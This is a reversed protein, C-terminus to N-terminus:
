GTAYTEQIMSILEDTNLFMTFEGDIFATGLLGRPTTADKRLNVAIVVSDLIQSVVIGFSHDGTKPIILYFERLKEPFPRIPILNELYILPLGEDRYNVYNRNGSTYISDSAILELRSIRDLPLAFYEEFANNFLLISEAKELDAKLRTEEERKRREEESNIEAFRLNSAEAIGMIDLIMAVKGDGMITAGAFCKCDKIHNLLPKVVIEQNDFLEDVMLGFIQTGLKSVVVNIDSRWSNRRNMHVRRENADPPPQNEIRKETEPHGSTESTDRRDVLHMRQDPLREESIAQTYTREIGLVDSLSVLPLIKERLRLVEAEGIKEIKQSIEKAHILILEQVNVQPVAFRKGSVGIILSPMIALTLPLRIQISTGKDLNSELEIYGGLAEINTKVVDMGVGRGSIDSIEDATSMGPLLILNIKEMESMLNARDAPIIGNTIAKEMVKTANIGRGDDKVIINVQGGEHFTKIRLEGKRPKGKKEREDPTEIGHDMSNRILHTLPDSLGELITKDLEVDKGEIKLEVEKSLQRSLDRVIRTFKNLLRGIPQMRMQMIKEQIESTVSDVNQIISTLKTSEFAIDEVEQRLQNRNLVLEGALNMMRDILDVNVRITEQPKSKEVKPPEPTDISTSITQSQDPESISTEDHLLANLTEIEKDFSIDNCTYINKFVEEMKDIIENIPNYIKSNLYLDGEGLANFLTQLTDSLHFIPDLSFFKSGTKIENMKKSIVNVHDHVEKLQIDTQKIDEIAQKIIQLQKLCDKAFENLIEDNEINNETPSSKETKKTDPVQKPRGELIANLKDLEHKYPMANSNHVDEIMDRAKDFGQLLADIKDPDPMMEGDRIKMLINEMVHSLEALAEFGLFGSAGKISHIARFVSNIVDKSVSSGDQEMQLLDPEISELHDRSEQIFETIIDVDYNENM